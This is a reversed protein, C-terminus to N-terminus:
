EDNKEKVILTGKAYEEITGDAFTFTTSYFYEGACWDIIQVDYKYTGAAGSILTIGGSTASTLTYEKGTVTNTFLTSIAVIASIPALGNVTLTCSAGGWTTGKFVAEKFDYKFRKDTAM